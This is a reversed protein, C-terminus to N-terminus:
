GRQLTVVNTALKSAGSIGLISFSFSDGALIEDPVLVASDQIAQYDAGDNFSIVKQVGDWEQSFTFRLALFNSSGKVIQYEYSSNSKYLRKGSVRFRLTNM